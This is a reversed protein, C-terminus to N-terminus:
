PRGDKRPALRFIGTQFVAEDMEGRRLRDYLYVRTGPEVHAFTRVARPLTSAKGSLEPNQSIREFQLLNAMCFVFSCVALVSGARSSWRASFLCLAVGALVLRSGPDAVGLMLQPLVAALLFACVAFRFLVDDRGQKPRRGLVLAFCLGALLLAVAVLLLVAKSGLLMETQSWGNAAQADVYGFPKLFTNVKYVLFAPSGYSSATNVAAHMDLRDSAYRGGAYWLTLLLTPGAPWLMSWCRRRHATLGLLLLACACAEM